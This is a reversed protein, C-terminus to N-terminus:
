FSFNGSDISNSIKTIADNYRNTLELYRKSDSTNWADADEFDDAKEAFESAELSLSMLSSMDNKKAAKEAKVVVKEYDDLFKDIQKRSKSEAFLMGAAFVLVLMAAVIRKTVNEMFFEKQLFNQIFFAWASVGFRAQM